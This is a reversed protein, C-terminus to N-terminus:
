VMRAAREALTDHAKKSSNNKQRPAKDPKPAPRQLKNKASALKKAMHIRDLMISSIKFSARFRAVKFPADLPKIKM